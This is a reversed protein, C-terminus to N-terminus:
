FYKLTFLSTNLLPRIGEYAYYNKNTKISSRVKLHFCKKMNIKKITKKSLALFDQPGKMSIKKEWSLNSWLFNGWCIGRKEVIGEGVLFIDRFVDTYKGIVM